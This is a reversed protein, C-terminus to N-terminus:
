LSEVTSAAALDIVGSGRSMVRELGIKGSDTPRAATETLAAKVLDPTWGRNKQKVLAAAGATRPASFSTGAAFDFGSANYIAGAAQVTQGKVAFTCTGRQVVAIAGNLSGGPLPTCAIGPSQGDVIDVDALPGSLAFNPLSCEGACAGGVVSVLNAPVSPLGSTVEFVGLSSLGYH